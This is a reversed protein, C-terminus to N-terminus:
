HLDTVILTGEFNAPSGAFMSRFPNSRGWIGNRSVCTRVMCGSAFFTFFRPVKEFRKVHNTKLSVCDHNGLRVGAGIWNQVPGRSALPRCEVLERSAMQSYRVPIQGHSFTSRCPKRPTRPAEAKIATAAYPRRDPRGTDEYNRLTEASNARYPRPLRPQASVM